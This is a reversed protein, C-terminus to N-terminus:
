KVVAVLVKPRFEVLKCIPRLEVDPELKLKRNSPRSPSSM